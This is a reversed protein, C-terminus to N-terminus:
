VCARKLGTRERGEHVRSVSVAHVTYKGCPYVGIWSCRRFMWERRHTSMLSGEWLKNSRQVHPRIRHRTLLLM